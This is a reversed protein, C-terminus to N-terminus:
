RVEITGNAIGELNAMFGKSDDRAIVKPGGAGGNSKTAGGGSSGTGEFAWPFQTMLTQEVFTDINMPTGQGDAVLPNGKADAVYAEFDDDTERVRVFKSGHEVLLNSRDPIGKKGAIARQLEAQVLRKELAKTLKGIKTNLGGLEKAHNDAMQKQLTTFDGEAAAKKREAEESAAVLKKHQEPDIGEYNKLAAKARKAENALEDRNGKIGALMTDVEEQTYTKITEDAM